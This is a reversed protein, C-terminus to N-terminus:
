NGILKLSSDAYNNEHFFFTYLTEVVLKIHRVYRNSNISLVRLNAVDSRCIIDFIVFGHGLFKKGCLM